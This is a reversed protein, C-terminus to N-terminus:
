YFQILNPTGQLIINNVFKATDTIIKIFHSNFLRCDRIMDLRPTLIGIQRGKEYSRGKSIISILIGELSIRM